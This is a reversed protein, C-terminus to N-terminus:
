HCDILQSLFMLKLFLITLISKNKIKSDLM